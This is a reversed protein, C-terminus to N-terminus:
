LRVIGHAVLYPVTLRVAPGEARDHEAIALAIDGQLEFRAAASPMALVAAAVPALAPALTSLADEPSAFRLELTHPRLRVRNAHRELDQRLREERGWATPPQVGEPLPDWAAALRLLRHVVGGTWATWAVVGGPRVVRCLEAAARRGDLTSMPGFASLARDFAGDPFPLDELDGQVWGIGTGDTRARGRALLAEAPECATVTAGREALELALAGAGAGADLVREGPEPCAADLLPAIAGTWLWGGDGSDRADRWGTLVDTERIDAWLGRADRIWEDTTVWGGPNKEADYLAPVPVGDGPKRLVMVYDNMAPALRRADVKGTAFLLSHLKMRQAMAQPNKPVVFEGTWDFGGACFLDVTAARLDRRGMIGHPVKTTVLQQIHVCTVSGPAMVRFLQEVFFRMHLGFHEARMDTGDHNNGIDEPKGSYMFLAGFPISTVCLDISEPALREAMGAICDCNHIEYLIEIV